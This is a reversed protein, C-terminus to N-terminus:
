RCEMLQMQNLAISVIPADPYRIVVENVTQCAEQRQGIKDLSIGLYYLANPAIESERDDSFAGLYSRAADTWKELKSLAQGQDFYAEGVLESESNSNIFKSYSNNSDNWREM